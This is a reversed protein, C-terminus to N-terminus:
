KAETTMPITSTPSAIMVGESTVYCAWGDKDVAGTSTNSWVSPFRPHIALVSGTGACADFTRGTIKRIDAVRRLRAHM